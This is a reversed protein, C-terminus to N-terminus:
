LLFNRQDLKELGIFSFVAYLESYFYIDSQLLNMILAKIRNIQRSALIYLTENGGLKGQYVIKGLGSYGQLQACQSCIGPVM